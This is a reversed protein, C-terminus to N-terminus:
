GEVLYSILAVTCGILVQSARRFGHVVRLAAERIKEASLLTFLIDESAVINRELSLKISFLETLSWNTAMLYVMGKALGRMCRSGHWMQITLGSDGHAIDTAGSDARDM